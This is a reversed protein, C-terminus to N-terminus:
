VVLAAALWWRCDWSNSSCSRLMFSEYLIVISLIRWPPSLQLLATRDFVVMALICCLLLDQNGIVEIVEVAQRDVNTRGQSREGPLGWESGCHSSLSAGPMVQVFIDGEFTALGYRLAYSRKVMRSRIADMLRSSSVGLKISVASVLFLSVLWMYTCM